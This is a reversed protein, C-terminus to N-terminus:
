PSLLWRLYRGVRSFCRLAYQTYDSVMGKAAKLQADAALRKREFYRTEIEYTLQLWQQLEASPSCSSRLRYEM